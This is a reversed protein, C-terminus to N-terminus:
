EYIGMWESVDEPRSEWPCREEEIRQLIEDASLKCPRNFWIEYNEKFNKIAVVEDYESYGNPNVADFRLMSMQDKRRIVEVYKFTLSNHKWCVEAYEEAAFVDTFKKELINSFPVVSGSFCLNVEYPYKQLDQELKALAEKMKM